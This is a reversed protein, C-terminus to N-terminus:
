GVVGLHFTWGFVKRIELQERGHQLNRDPIRIGCMEANLESDGGDPVEGLVQAIQQVSLFKPLKKVLRCLNNM